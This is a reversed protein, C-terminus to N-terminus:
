GSGAGICSRLWGNSLVSSLRLRDDVKEIEVVRLVFPLFFRSGEENRHARTERRYDRFYVGCLNLPGCSVPENAEESKASERRSKRAWHISGPVSEKTRPM